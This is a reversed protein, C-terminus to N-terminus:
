VESPAKGVIAEYNVPDTAGETCVCVVTAGAGLGLGALDGQEAALALLAGVSAAGTEGVVLGEAALARMADAAADNEITVCWDFRDRMAPWAVMSLTGCNMGAMISDHPGPVSVMEGAVLSRYLCDAATPEVAIRVPGDPPGSPWHDLAAQALGGVGVPVVFADPAGSGLQEDIEAFLTLYGESTWRPVQEYGPWSTDSVVLRDDNATSAALEVAEDYDGDIVTVRAGESEIATVRAPVTGAPMYIDAGLGFWKAARAVARGHNGDTATTLTVPGLDRFAERVGEFTTAEPPHGHQQEYRQSLLRYTAWSAGLIKFAPLGFRELEYKVLVRGVGLRGALGPLSVLATPEYGAIARHLDIAREFGVGNLPTADPLNPRVNPNRLLQM